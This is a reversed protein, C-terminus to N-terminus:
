DAADEGAKEDKDKREPKPSPDVYPNYTIPYEPKPSWLGTKIWELLATYRKDDTGRFFPKWNELDAPAPFKAQDRPLGYQLLLSEEPRYRDIFGVGDIEKESLIYFNAYAEGDTNPRKYFLRLGPIAEGDGFHRAFYDAIYNRNIRKWELFVEPDSLVQVQEYLDRAKLQRMLGVKEANSLNRLKAFGTRGVYPQMLPDSRHQNVLEKLTPIKISMRPLRDADLKLEYVRIINIQEPTMVFIERAKGKGDEPEGDKDATAAEGNDERQKAIQEKLDQELLKVLVALEPKLKSSKSLLYNVENLAYKFQKQERLWQALEYRQKDKEEESAESTAIARKRDTYQEIFSKIYKIEDIDSRSIARPVERGAVAVEVTAEDESRIVGTVTDGNTLTIEARRGVNQAGASWAALGLLMAVLVATLRRAFSDTM